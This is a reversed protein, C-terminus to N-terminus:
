FSAINNEEAEETCALLPFMLLLAIIKKM